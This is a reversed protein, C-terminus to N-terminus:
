YFKRKLHLKAQHLWYLISILFLCSLVIRDFGTPFFWPFLICLSELIMMTGIIWETKFDTRLKM